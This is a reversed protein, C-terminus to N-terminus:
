RSIMGGPRRIAEKHQALLAVLDAPPAAGKAVKLKVEDDALFLSVGSDLARTLLALITKNNDM